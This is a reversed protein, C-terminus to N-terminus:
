SGRLLKRIAKLREALTKEFGRETPFYLEETDSYHQRLIGHDSDHPYQYGTAGSSRLHAPIPPLFGTRVQEIAQNIASYAANSKPALALYVTVEALPIRGEPMGIKEVVSAAAEALVLAQPDALGIDEAALIMLRRAIFRPDEGGEIMRALYHLASDADSGRVSKIFASITDYHVDGAADYAIANQSVQKITELEVHTSAAAGAELL